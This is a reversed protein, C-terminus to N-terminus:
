HQPVLKADLVLIPQRGSTSFHVDQGGPQIELPISRSIMLGGPFEVPTNEITARAPGSLSIAVVELNAKLPVETANLARFMSDSGAIRYDAWQGTQFFRNADTQQLQNMQRLDSFGSGRVRFSGAQLWLMQLIEGARQQFDQGSLNQRAMQGSMFNLWTQDFRWPKFYAWGSGYILRTPTGSAKLKALWDEETNYFLDATVRNTNPELLNGVVAFGSHRLWLAESNTIAARHSFFKDPWDWVGTLYEHNRTLRLYGQMMGSEFSKKTEERWNGELFTRYPEDPKTFTVIVNSPSYIAMEVWPEFWRDVVVVSGAPLTKDLTQVIQHYPTPKGDLNVLAWVPRLFVALLLVSALIFVKQIEFWSPLRPKLSQAALWLSAVCWIM